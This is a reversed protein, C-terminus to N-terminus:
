SQEAQDKLNPTLGFLQCVKKQVDIILEARELQAKLRENEQRLQALEVAQPDVHRGGKQGALGALQGKAQQRRWQSVHSSYIGERRLIAGIQGPECQEIEALVRLKEAASFQRRKTQAVVEPDPSALKAKGNLNTKIDQQQSM